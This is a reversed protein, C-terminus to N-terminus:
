ESRPSDSAAVRLMSIGSRNEAILIREGGTEVLHLRLGGNLVSREIVRLSGGQTLNGTFKPLYRRLAYAVGVAIAATLLFSLVVRGVSPMTVIDSGQTLTAAAQQASASAVLVFYMACVRGIRAMWRCSDLREMDRM